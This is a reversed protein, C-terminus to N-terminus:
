LGTNKSVKIMNRSCVTLNILPIYLKCFYYYNKDSRCLHKKKLTKGLFDRVKIGLVGIKSFLIDFDFYEEPLTNGKSMEFAHESGM